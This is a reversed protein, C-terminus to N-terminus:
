KAIPADYCSDLLSQMQAVGKRRTYEINREPIMEPRLFNNLAKTIDSERIIHLTPYPARNTYNAADEDLEEDFCYDPHFSALQYTGLYNDNALQTQACDLLDLYQHFDMEPDSFIMLTTAITADNDLQQCADWFKDLYCNFRAPPVVLYQISQAQVEAKAFPCINMRVIVKDVWTKTHDIIAAHNDAFERRKEVSSM